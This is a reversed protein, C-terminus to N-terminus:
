KREHRFRLDTGPNLLLEGNVVPGDGLRVVSASVHTPNLDLFGVTGLRTSQQHPLTASGPNIYLVIDESNIYEFHTHGSILIDLPVGM